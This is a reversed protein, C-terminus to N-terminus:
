PMFVENMKGARYSAQYTLKGEEDWTSTIGDQRNNKFEKDSALQGNAHWTKVNGEITGAVYTREEKVSKDAFFLRCIGSFPLDTKFYLSRNIAADTYLDDCSCEKPNEPAPVPPAEVQEESCSIFGLLFFLTCGKLLAKM